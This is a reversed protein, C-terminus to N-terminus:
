ALRSALVDILVSLELACDVYTQEDGGAPDAM